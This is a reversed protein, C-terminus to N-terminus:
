LGESLTRYSNHFRISNIFENPHHAKLYAMIYVVLAEKEACAKRSVFGSYYNMLNYVKDAKKKPIGNSESANIFMSYMEKIRKRDKRIFFNLLSEGQENTFNAIESTIQFFQERFIILGYSNVLIPKLSPIIYDIKKRPMKRDAYDFLNTDNKNDIFDYMMDNHLPGPRNFALFAILDTFKNPKTLKLFYQDDSRQLQFIGHTDGTSLLMYTKKDELDLNEINPVPLGIARINFLIKEITYEPYNEM